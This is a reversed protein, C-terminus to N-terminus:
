LAFIIQKRKFRYVIIGLLLSVVALISLILLDRLNVGPGGFITKRGIEIFHTFPNFGLIVRIHEPIREDFRDYIIPSGYMLMVLIPEIVHGIDRFFVNLVATVM